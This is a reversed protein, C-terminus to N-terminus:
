NNVKKSNSYHTLRTVVHTDVKHVVSNVQWTDLECTLSQCTFQM